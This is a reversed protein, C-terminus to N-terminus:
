VKPESAVNGSERLKPADARLAAELDVVFPLPEYEVDILRLADEADAAVAAVEDGIYRVTSDFLLSDQYWTIDPARASTLVARVGPLAAARSMDIRRIRAHPLPSRLVRAYLLGPLRIDYAYRARGTVKEEGEIRPHPHGVVTFAADTGWRPQRITEIVTYEDESSEGSRLKDVHLIPM